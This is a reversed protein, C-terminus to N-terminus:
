GNNGEKKRKKIEIKQRGPLVNYGAPYNALLDMSLQFSSNSWNSKAQLKSSKKPSNIELISWQSSKKPLFKDRFYQVRCPLKKLSFKARFYQVGGVPFIKKKPPPSNLELIYLLSSKKPLRFYVFDFAAHKKKNINTIHLFYIWLFNESM